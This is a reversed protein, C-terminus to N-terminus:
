HKVFKTWVYCFLILVPILIVVWRSYGSHMLQNHTRVSDASLFHLM